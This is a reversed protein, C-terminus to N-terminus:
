DSGVLEWISEIRGNAFELTRHIDGVNETNRCSVVDTNRCSVVDTELESFLSRFVGLDTTFKPSTADRVIEEMIRTKLNTLKQKGKAPNEDLLVRIEGLADYLEKNDM